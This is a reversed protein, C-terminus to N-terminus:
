VETFRGKKDLDIASGNGLIATQQPPFRATTEPERFSPSANIPRFQIPLEPRCHRLM